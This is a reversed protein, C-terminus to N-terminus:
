DFRGNTFSYSDVFSMNSFDSSSTSRFVYNTKHHILKEGLIIQQYKYNLLM